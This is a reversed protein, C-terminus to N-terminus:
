GHDSSRQSPSVILVRTPGLGAGALRQSFVKLASHYGKIVSIPLLLWGVLRNRAGYVRDPGFGAKSLEIIILVSAKVHRYCSCNSLRYMGHRFWKCENSWRKSM